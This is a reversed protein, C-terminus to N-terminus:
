YVTSVKNAAMTEEVWKCMLPETSCIDNTYFEKYSEIISIRTLYGEAIGAAQAQLQDSASERTQVELFM